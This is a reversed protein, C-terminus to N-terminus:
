ETNPWKAYLEPSISSAILAILLASSNCSSEISLARNALISSVLCSYLCALSKYLLKITAWYSIVYVDNGCRLYTMGADFNRWERTPPFRLMQVVALLAYVDNGCRLYTIGADFIRWERTPPFRLMQGILEIWVTSFCDKELIYFHMLKIEKSHANVM